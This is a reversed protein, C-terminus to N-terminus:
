FQISYPDLVDNENETVVVKEIAETVYYEYYYKNSSPDWRKIKVFDVGGITTFEVDSNTIIPEGQNAQNLAFAHSTTKVFRVNTGNGDLISKLAVNTM